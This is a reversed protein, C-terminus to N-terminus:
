DKSIYDVQGRLEMEVELDVTVSATMDDSASVKFNKHKMIMHGTNPLGTWAEEVSKFDPLRIDKTPQISLRVRSITYIYDLIMISIEAKKILQDSTVFTLVEEILFNSKDIQHIKYHDYAFDSEIISTRIGDKDSVSLNGETAKGRNGHKVSNYFNKQHVDLYDKIIYRVARYLSILVSEYDPINKFGHLMYEIFRILEGYITTKGDLTDIRDGYTLREAFSSIEKPYINSLLLPISEGPKTLTMLMMLLSELIEFYLQFIMAACLNKKEKSNKIFYKYVELKEEFMGTDFNTDVFSRLEVSHDKSWWVMDKSLTEITKGKFEFVGEEM